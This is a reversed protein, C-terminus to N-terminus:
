QFCIITKLLVHQQSWAKRLLFIESGNTTKNDEELEKSVMTLLLVYTRVLRNTVSALFTTSLVVPIAPARYIAPLLALLLLLHSLIIEFLWKRMELKQLSFYWKSEGAARHEKYKTSNSGLSSGRQVLQRAQIFRCKCSFFGTQM